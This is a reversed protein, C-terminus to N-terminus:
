RKIQAFFHEITGRLIGMFFAAKQVVTKRRHYPKGVM